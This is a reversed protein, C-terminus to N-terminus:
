RYITNGEEDTFLWPAYDGTVDIHLYLPAGSTQKYIPYKHGSAKPHVSHSNNKKYFGEITSNESEVELCRAGYHAKRVTAPFPSKKDM